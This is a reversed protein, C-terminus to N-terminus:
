IKSKTMKIGDFAKKKEEGNLKVVALHWRTGKFVCCSCMGLSVPQFKRDIVHFIEAWNVPSFIGDWTVRVPISIQVRSSIREMYYCIRKLRYKNALGPKFRLGRLRASM